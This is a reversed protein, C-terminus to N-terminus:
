MDLKIHTRVEKAQRTVPPQKETVGAQKLLYSIMTRNVNSTVPAKPTFIPQAIGRNRKRNTRQAKLADLRKWRLANIWPKMIKPLGVLVIGVITAVTAHLIYNALFQLSELPTMGNFAALVQDYFLASGILLVLSIIILLKKNM